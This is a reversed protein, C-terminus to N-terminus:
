LPLVPSAAQAAIADIFKQCADMQECYDAKLRHYEASTLHGDKWDPYLSDTLFQLHCLEKHKRELQLTLTAASQQAAAQTLEQQLRALPFFARGSAPSHEPDDLDFHHASAAADPSASILLEGAM